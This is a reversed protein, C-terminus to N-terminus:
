DAPGLLLGFHIARPQHDIAAIPLPNRQLLRFADGV